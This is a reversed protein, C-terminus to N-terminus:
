MGHLSSMVPKGLEREVEVGLGNMAVDCVGGLVGYGLLLVWLLALDPALSPPVLAVAFLLATARTVTRAGRRHIIRGTLPMALFAGLAPALLALGLGGPGAGVHEQIWPIRTAFSGGVAGHLAFVAAVATRPTLRLSM